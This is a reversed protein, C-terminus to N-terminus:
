AAYSRNRVDFYVVHQKAIAKIELPNEIIDDQAEPYNGKEWAAILNSSSSEELTKDELAIRTSADYNDLYQIYDLLAIVTQADNKSMGTYHAIIGEQSTDLPHETAYKEEYATVPNTSGEEDFAGMDDLLRMDEIYRQYYKGKTNWFTNNSSATTASTSIGTTNVCRAGTAWAQHDPDLENIGDIIGIIDGVFPTVNLMADITGSGTSIDFNSLIGSDMVGFPSERGDCFTVYRALDTNDKISCNGESDCNQDAGIVKQYTEDDPSLDITSVDTTTVPNCYIDGEAGISNLDPCNGFTTMYSEGEGEAHVKGIISSISSSTTRLLSSISTAKDTTIVPLLNYAISGFFTNKNTTDFPSLNKRDIEADLALVTNNVRSYAVAAQKSSLSQGSGSRGIRTNAASAGRTFLEGAPIGTANEFVNTFLTQAITPILFSLFATIAANVAVAGVLKTFLGAAIKATGLSGITVALSIAGEAISAAACGSVTYASFRLAKQVSGSVRELSYQNTTNSNGPAGALVMQMGNSQLPAGSVETTGTSTNSADAVTATTSTSLFNLVENLASADGYGAKMKSVNEMLGMFYNISQYIENAAITMSILNGVKMIACGINMVDSVKSATDLFSSAKSTRVSASDVEKEIRTETQTKGDKDEYTYTKEENGGASINIDDNEFRPSLTEKYNNMDTDSNGTQKYKSFLNRSLGLKQYIKNAINDFFTAVRGRKASVYSDRFDVDNRYVNDFDAATIRQSVETGDVGTKTYILTKNSGSGEITIGQNALRKKFSSSMATYKKAGTWTTATAGTDKLYYRMLHTSRMSASAYQTDTAETFLAEMAPALLSNSSGLFAGGGIILSAIVGIVAAKRKNSKGKVPTKSPRGNGTYFSRERGSAADNEANRLHSLSSSIGGKERDPQERGRSSYGQGNDLHDNYDQDSFTADHSDRDNALRLSGSDHDWPEYEGGPQYSPNENDRLRDRSSTSGTRTPM